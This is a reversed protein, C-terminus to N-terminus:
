KELLLKNNSEFSRLKFFKMNNSLEMAQASLEETSAAAAEVLAGNKQTNTDLSNLTQDIQDVSTLQEQSAASIEAILTTVKNVSNNIQNLMEGANNAIDVGEIVKDNSSKIIETIEKAAKDSKKALKRVEVAVVAFGKGMEGARAAEISANLALLNTQFAINNIVEIIESIKNSSGSIDKMSNIMQNVAETGEKAKVAVDKSLTDATLTNDANSRISSNMEEIAASTEELASAQQETRSSLEQNGSAIQSSASAIEDSSTRVSAIVINLKKMMTSLSHSLEGIEDSHKLSQASIDLSLNGKAVEKLNSSVDSIRNTFYKAILTSIIIVAIVGLLTLLIYRILLPRIAKTIIDLNVFYIVEWETSKIEQYAMIKKVGNFTYYRYGNKEKLLSKFTDRMGEVELMNQNVLSSDPHALTVGNKDMLAVSINEEQLSNIKEIVENFYIDAGIVGMLRNNNLIPSAISITYDGTNEDIYYDTFITKRMKKADSYWPRTTPDWGEPPTWDVGLLFEKKETGVYLFDLLAKEADMVLYPNLARNEAILAQFSEENDFMTSAADVISKRQLFWSETETAAQHVKLTLERIVGETTSRRQSVYSSISIISLLTIATLSFIIALKKGIGFQKQKM